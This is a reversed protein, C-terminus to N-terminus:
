CSTAREGCGESTVRDGVSRQRSVTALSLLPCRRGHNHRCVSAAAEKSRLYYQKYRRNSDQKFTTVETDAGNSFRLGVSSQNKVKGHLPPPSAISWHNSLPNISNCKLLLPAESSSEEEGDLSFLQCRCRRTRGGCVIFFLLLLEHYRPLLSLEESQLSSSAMPAGGMFWPNGHHFNNPDPPPLAMAPRQGAPRHPINMSPSTKSQPDTSSKGRGYLPALKEDEIIAKCVPCESSQAHVHLWKYLCAWYLHGCLTVVCGGGYGGGKEKKGVSAEFGGGREEESSSESAYVIQM